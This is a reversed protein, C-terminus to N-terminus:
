NKSLLFKIKFNCSILKFLSMWPSVMRKFIKILPAHLLRDIFKVDLELVIWSCVLAVAQTLILKKNKSFHTKYHSQNWNIM